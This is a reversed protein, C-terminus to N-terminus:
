RQWAKLELWIKITVGVPWFFIGLYFGRIVEGVRANAFTTLNNLVMGTYFGLGFFIYIWFWTM